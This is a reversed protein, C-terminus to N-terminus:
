LDSGLARLGSRTPHSLSVSARAAAGLSLPLAARRANGAPEFLTEKTRRAKTSSRNKAAAAFGSGDSKTDMKPKDFASPTAEAIVEKRGTQLYNWGCSSSRM